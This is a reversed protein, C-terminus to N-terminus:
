RSILGRFFHVLFLITKGWPTICSASMNIGLFKGTSLGSPKYLCFQEGNSAWFFGYPLASGPDVDLDNLGSLLMRLREHSRAKYISAGINDYFNESLVISPKGWFVAEIGVTSNCTIVADVDDILEYSSVSSNSPVVLVHSKDSDIFQLEDWVVQDPSNIKALRPHVRVILAISAESCATVVAKLMQRQNDWDSRERVFVDDVSAYEDDSSAFFCVVQSFGSAIKVKSVLDLALGSSYNSSFSVWGLDKGARLDRFYQAAIASNDVSNGSSIANWTDVMDKQLSIRDHVQYSRLSFKFLNSTREHYFVPAHKESALQCVSKGAPFRGNFVIFAGVNKLENVVKQTILYSFQYDRILRVADTKYDLYNFEASKARSVLASLVSMGIQRSGKWDLNKLSQLSEPSTVNLGEISYKESCAGSFLYHSANLVTIPLNYKAKIAELISMGNQEYSIGKRKFWSVLGTGVSNYFDNELLYKGYHLYVVHFGTFALRLAIELSTEIHPTRNVTEAILVSQDEREPCLGDLFLPKINRSFQQEISARNWM